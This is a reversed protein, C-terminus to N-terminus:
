GKLHVANGEKKRNVHRYPTSVPAHIAAVVGSRRVMRLRCRSVGAKPRM